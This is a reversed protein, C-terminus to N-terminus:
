HIVSGWDHFSFIYLEKFARFNRQVEWSAYNLAPYRHFRNSICYVKNKSPISIESLSLMIKDPPNCQSSHQIFDPATQKFQLTIPITLCNSMWGERLLVSLVSSTQTWLPSPSIETGSSLTLTIFLRNHFIVSLYDAQTWVAACKPNM